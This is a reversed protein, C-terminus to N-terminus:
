HEICVTGREAARLFIKALQAAGSCYCQMNHLQSYQPCPALTRFLASANAGRGSGIWGLLPVKSSTWILIPSPSSLNRVTISLNYLFTGFIETSDYKNTSFFRQSLMSYGSILERIWQGQNVAHREACYATSYPPNPFRSGISTNSKCFREVAEAITSIEIKRFQPKLEYLDGLTTDLDPGLM